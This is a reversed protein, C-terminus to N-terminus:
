RLRSNPKKKLCQSLESHPDDMTPYMKSKNKNYDPHQIFDVCTRLEGYELNSLLDLAGVNVYTGLRGIEPACHAAYLVVRPAIM